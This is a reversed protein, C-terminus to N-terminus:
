SSSESRPDASLPGYASEEVRSSAPALSSGHLRVVERPDVAGINTICTLFCAAGPSRHDAELNDRSSANGNPLYASKNAGVIHIESIVVEGEVDVGHSSM